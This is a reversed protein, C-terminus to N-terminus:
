PKKHVFMGQMAHNTYAYFEYNDPCTFTATPNGFRALVTEKDFNRRPNRLVIFDFNDNKYFKTSSLLLSPSLDDQVSAVTIGSHNFSTMPKTDWYNAIGAHLNLKKAYDDLCALLPPYYTLLNSRNLPPKNWLSFGIILFLVTATISEKKTLIGFLPTHKYILLPLGILVPCLIFPQLHRLGFYPHDASVLFLSHDTIIFAPIGWLITVLEWFLIFNVWKMEPNIHTKERCYTQRLSFPVFILFSLWMMAILPSEKFFHIFLKVFNGINGPKFHIPHGVGHKFLSFPFTYLLYGVLTTFFLLAILRRCNQTSVYHLKYCFFVTLMLPVTLYFAVIVDSYIGLITVVVFSAIIIYNHKKMCLYMFLYLSTMLMILSGFHQSSMLMASFLEIGKEGPAAGMLESSLVFVILTFLLGIRIKLSQQTILKLLMAVIFLLYLTQIVAYILINKIISSTFFGIVYSVIMDPFFYPTEAFFWDRLAGHEYLLNHTIFPIQLLDNNEYIHQFGMHANSWYCAISYLVSCITLFTLFNLLMSSTKSKM